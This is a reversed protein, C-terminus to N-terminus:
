KVKGAVQKLKPWVLCLKGLSNEKQDKISKTIKLKNIKKAFFHSLTVDYDQFDEVVSVDFVAIRVAGTVKGM